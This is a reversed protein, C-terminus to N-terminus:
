RRTAHDWCANHVWRSHGNEYVVFVPRAAITEGCCSCMPVEGAASRFVDSTLLLSM